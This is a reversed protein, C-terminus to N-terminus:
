MSWLINISTIITSLTMVEFCHSLRHTWRFAIKHFITLPGTNIENKPFKEASATYVRKRAHCAEWRKHAYFCGFVFEYSYQTFATKIAGQITNLIQNPSNLVSKYGFRQIQM